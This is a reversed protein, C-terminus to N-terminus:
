CRGPCGRGSIDYDNYLATMKVKELKKFLDDDDDFHGVLAAVALPHVGFTNILATIFSRRLSHFDRLKEYLGCARRYDTFHTSYTDGFKELRGAPKLEPFIRKSRANGTKFLDLVGISVLFPHVPVNRVSSETKTRKIGEDNIRIYPIGNCDHALDDHHLQALEELRAGTWLALVPLWWYADRYVHPGPQSRKTVDARRSRTGSWIPSGFLANLQEVTWIKRKQARPVSESLEIGDFLDDIGSPNAFKDHKIASRFAAKVHM